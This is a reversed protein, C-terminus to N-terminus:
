KANKNNVTIVASNINSTELDFTENSASHKSRINCIIKYNM